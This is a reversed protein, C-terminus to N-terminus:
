QKEGALDNVSVLQRCRDLHATPLHQHSPHPSSPDPPVTTTLSAPGPADPCASESPERLCRLLFSTLLERGAVSAYTLIIPM